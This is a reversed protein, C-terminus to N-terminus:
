LVFVAISCDTSHSIYVFSDDVLFFLYIGTVFVEIVVIIVLAIDM